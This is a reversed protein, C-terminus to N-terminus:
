EKDKFYDLELINEKVLFTKYYKEIKLFADKCLEKEIKNTLTNLMFKADVLAIDMYIKKESTYIVLNNTLESFDVKIIEDYRIETKKLQLIYRGEVTEEKMIVYDFAYSVAIYAVLVGAIIYVVLSLNGSLLDISYLMVALVVPILIMAGAATMDERHKDGLKHYKRGFRLTVNASLLSVFIVVVSSVLLFWINNVTGYQKIVGSIFTYAIVVSVSLLLRNNKTM